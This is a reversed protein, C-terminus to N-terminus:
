KFIIEVRGEGGNGVPMIKTSIQEKTVYNKEVLFNRIKIARYYAQRQALSYSEPGLYSLIVVPRGAIKQALSQMLGDFRALSAEDLDMTSEPYVLTIENPGSVVNVAGRQAETKHAQATEIDLGKKDADLASSDSVGAAEIAALREEQLRQEVMQEVVKNVKSAMIVLAFVFVVLVFVLTLVVNALADVFGPWYNEERSNGGGGGAM